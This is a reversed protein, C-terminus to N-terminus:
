FIYILNLSLKNSLLNILNKNAPMTIIRKQIQIYIKTINKSEWEKRKKKAIAGIRNGEGFTACIWKIVFAFLCFQYFFYFWGFRELEFVRRMKVSSFYIYSLIIAFLLQLLVFKIWMYGRISSRVATVIKM